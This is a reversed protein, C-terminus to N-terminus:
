ASEQKTRTRLRTRISANNTKDEAVPPENNPGAVVVLRKKMAAAINAAASAESSVEAKVVSKPSTTSSTNKKTASSVAASKKGLRSQILEVEHDHNVGDEHNDAEDDSSDDSREGDSASDHVVIRKNSKSLRPLSARKSSATTRPKSTGNVARGSGGSRRVYTDVDSDDSDGDSSSTLDDRSSDGTTHDGEDQSMSTNLGDKNGKEKAQM